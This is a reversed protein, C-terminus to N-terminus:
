FKFEIFVKGSWVYGFLIWVCSEFCLLGCRFCNAYFKLASINILCLICELVFLSVEKAPLKISAYRFGERGETRSKVLILLGFEFKSDLVFFM